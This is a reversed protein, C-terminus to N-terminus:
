NTRTSHNTFKAPRVRSYPVSSIIATKTALINGSKDGLKRLKKLLYFNLVKKKSRSFSPGYSVTGGEFETVLLYRLDAEAMKSAM